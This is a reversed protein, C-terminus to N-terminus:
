ENVIRNYVEKFKTDPDLLNNSQDIIGNIKLINPTPKNSVFHVSKFINIQLEFTDGDSFGSFLKAPIWEPFLSLCVKNSEDIYTYGNYSFDTSDLEKSSFVMNILQDNNIDFEMNNNKCINIAFDLTFKKCIGDLKDVTIAEKDFVFCRVDNAHLVNGEVKNM